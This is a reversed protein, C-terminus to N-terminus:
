RKNLVSAGSTADTEYIEVGRFKANVMEGNDIIDCLETPSMPVDFTGFEPANYNKMLDRDHLPNSHPIQFRKHAKGDKDFYTLFLRAYTGDVRSSVLIWRGSSSWDAIGEARNTNIADMPACEKTETNYLYLDADPHSYHYGSFESLTFLVYKNDPSVRPKSVSKGEKTAQYVIEPEGWSLSDINFPIRMLDYKLTRFLTVDQNKLVSDTSCYYLYKGDASWHPNSEMKEPTQRIYSVENKEIDYLLLDSYFDLPEIKSDSKSMFLQMVKNNSFAIFPQTPHWASFVASVRLDGTKTNVLQTKGKYTLVMGGKKGRSFFLSNKEGNRQKTHCNVCMPNGSNDASKIHRDNNALTKEEGNELNYQEISVKGVANFLPTILRYTIYPDVSDPSVTWKFSDYKIWKGSEEKKVYVDITLEKDINNRLLKEWEKPPFCINMKKDTAVTIQTGEASTLQVIGESGKNEIHFNLPQINCPILINKYEPYINLTDHSNQIFQEPVKTTCSGLTILSILLCLFCIKQTHQSKNNIITYTMKILMLITFTLYM